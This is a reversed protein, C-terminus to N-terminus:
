PFRSIIPSLNWKSFSLKISFDYKPLMTKSQLKSSQYNAIKVFVRNYVNSLIRFLGKLLLWRLHETFFSTILIECIECYLVKTSNILTKTHSYRKLKSLVNHHTKSIALSSETSEQTSHRLSSCQNGTVYILKWISLIHTMFHINLNKIADVVNFLNILFSNNLSSYYEM